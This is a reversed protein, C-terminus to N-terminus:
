RFLNNFLEFRSIDRVTIWIVLLLLLGFGLRNITDKWKQPIEKGLVGEVGVMLTHGGDLAPFPLINLIGLSVSLIIIFQVLASFGLRAATGTLKVIAVPGGVSESLEGRTVILSIFKGFEVLTMETLRWTEKAAVFPALYWKSQVKGVSDMEIGIRQVEEGEITEKYTDLDASFTEGDREVRVSVKANENNTKVEQVKAFLEVPWHVVEGNAAVILDGARLGSKEAPSDKAVSTIKVKQTNEVGKHEWMGTIIAKGGFGYFLTLLFWALLFNMAVGAVFIFMKQLPSKSTLSEPNKKDEGEEGLLKVYGGIPIANIAYTTDKVKKSFLRPPFGFAFEKVRVGTLRAALFHGLEHVFVLIGFVFIFALITTIM